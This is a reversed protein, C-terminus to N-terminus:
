QSANSEESNTVLEALTRIEGAVPPDFQDLNQELFQHLGAGSATQRLQLERLGDVFRSGSEPHSEGLIIEHFVERAPRHPVPIESLNWDAPEVDIRLVTPEHDRIAEARSRRSINGPTLWLTQGKKVPPM